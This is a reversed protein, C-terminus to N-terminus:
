IGQTRWDYTPTERLEDLIKQFASCVGAHQIRTNHWALAFVGGVARCRSLLDRLALLSQRPDLKMYSM